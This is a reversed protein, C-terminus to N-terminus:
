QFFSNKHNKKEFAFFLPRRFGEIALAPYNKDKRRGRKRRTLRGYKDTPLSKGFGSPM